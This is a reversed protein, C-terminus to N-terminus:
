ESAAAITKVEALLPGFKGYNAHVGDDLDLHIRQDAYHRLKEDFAALEHQKKLLADLQKQLKNKASGTTAADREKTAHEIQATLKGMLPLVYEHRM